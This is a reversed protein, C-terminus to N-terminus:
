DGIKQILKLLKIAQELQEQMDEAYMSICGGELMEDETESDLQFLGSGMCENIDELGKIINKNLEM